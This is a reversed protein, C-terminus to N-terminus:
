RYAITLANSVGVLFGTATGGGATTRQVRARFTIVDGASVARAATSGSLQVEGIGDIASWNLNTFLGTLSAVFVGNIFLYGVADAIYRTATNTDAILNGHASVDIVGARPATLSLVTTTGNLVINSASSVTTYYKNDVIKWGLGPAYHLTEGLLNTGWVSQSATPAPISTVNNSLGTQAVINERAYLDAPNVILNNATGAITEAPTAFNPMATAPPLVISGGNTLSIVNGAISITQDDSDPLTVTNGGSISLDQGSLTLTPAPAAPLAITNGGSISLNNGVLSLLQDDSDPLLVSNGGSISLTQGSISLLQDDSDPLLVSNGGSISLTQGSISLTQDDSDPLLVSNGGSISLVQGLVSLTPYVAPATAVTTCSQIEDPACTSQNSLYGIATDGGDYYPVTHGVGATPYIYGVTDGNCDLVAVTAAPDTNDGTRYMYGTEQPCGGCEGSDTRLSACYEVPPIVPVCAVVTLDPFVSGADASFTCTAPNYTAGSVLAKVDNVFAAVSNYQTGGWTFCAPVPCISVTATDPPPIVVPDACCGRMTDSTITSTSEYVIVEGTFPAASFDYGTILARLRVAQPADLVIFPNATNVRVPQGECCMLPQWSTENALRDLPVECCGPQLIDRTPSSLQVMEFTVTAGPPLGLAAVTVQKEITFNVLSVGSISSTNFLVTPKM